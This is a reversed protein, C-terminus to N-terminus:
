RSRRRRLCVSGVLGVMGLYMAASAPEPVASVTLSVLGTTATDLSYTYGSPLAGLTLGNNLFIGTYSFLTYTGAGFGTGGTVTLLGDLTLDGTVFVTDSATGLDFLLSSTDAFALNGVFALSGTQSIGSGNFDGPTFIGGASVSVDRNITGAGGLAASDAVTVASGGASLSGNVLLTGANVLTAGSYTNAAEISVIGLGTKTLTDGSGLSASDRVIGGTFNVRGGAAATVTIPKATQSSATGSSTNVTITGSYTSTSADAGGITYTSSGASILRLNQAIARNGETLISIPDSVGSVGVTVTNASAGLAANSALRVNSGWVQVGGTFSNAGSLRVIATTASGNNQGRIILGGAGSIDGNVTLTLSGTTPVRLQLQKGNNDIAGNFTLDGSAATFIANGTLKLANSITQLSTGNNIIGQSNSGIGSAGAGFISIEGTGSLTFHSAGSNFAISAVHFDSNLVPSTRTSGAFQIATTTGTVPATGGWNAPTLFSNDSGSGTWVSQASLPALAVLTLAACVLHGRHFSHASTIPTNM